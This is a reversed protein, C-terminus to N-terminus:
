SYWIPMTDGHLDESLKGTDVHDAVVL